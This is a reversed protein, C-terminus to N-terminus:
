HCVNQLKSEKMLLIGVADEKRVPSSRHVMRQIVILARHKPFVPASSSLSTFSIYLLLIIIHRLPIVCNKLAVYFCLTLFFIYIIYELIYRVETNNPAPHTSSSEDKNLSVVEYDYKEEEIRASSANLIAHRHTMENIKSNRTEFNTEHNEELNNMTVFLSEEMMFILSFGLYITMSGFALIIMLQKLTSRYDFQRLEGNERGKASTEPTKDSSEENNGLKRDLNKLYAKVLADHRLRRAELEQERAKKSAM